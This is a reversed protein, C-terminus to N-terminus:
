GILTVLLLRSYPLLSLNPCEGQTRMAKTGFRAVVMVAVM